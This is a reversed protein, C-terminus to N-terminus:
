GESVFGLRAPHYFSSEGAPHSKTSYTVVGLGPPQLFGQPCLDCSPSVSAAFSDLSLPSLGRYRSCPGSDCAYVPFLMQTGGWRKGEGGTGSQSAGALRQLIKHYFIFGMVMQFEM